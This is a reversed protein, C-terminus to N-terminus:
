SRSGAFAAHSDFRELVALGDPCFRERRMLDALESRSVWRGEAIEEAQLRLPGDSACAYVRGHVRTLQDEYSMSFLPEVTANGLGVEEAVERRAASEYDEGAAVVGGVAVDWFGPYVDKDDTRRHVFLRGSSDFLLIYVCRHLLRLRRMESRTVRATVRDDGDVIDVLEGASM